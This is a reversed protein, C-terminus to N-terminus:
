CPARLLSDDVKGTGRRVLGRRELAALSREVEDPELKGAPVPLLDAAPVGRVLIRIREGHRVEEVLRSLNNKANTLSETRM